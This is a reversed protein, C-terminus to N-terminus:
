RAASSSTAASDSKYPVSARKKQHPFRFHHYTKSEGKRHLPSHPFAASACFIRGLRTSIRSFPPPSLLLFHVKIDKSFCVRSGGREPFSPLFVLSSKGILFTTCKCYTGLPVQEKARYCQHLATLSLLGESLFPTGNRPAIRLSLLSHAGGGEVSMNNRGRKKKSMSCHTPRRGKKHQWSPSFFCCLLWSAM